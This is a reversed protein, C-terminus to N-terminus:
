FWSKKKSSLKQLKEYLGKEESSLKEPIQLRVRVYHDGYGSSRLHPVGKDRIRILAGPETGAPVKLSVEGWVTKVTVVDGLVVQPITLTVESFIDAGERLFEPHRRVRFVIDVGEFRMRTGNDVGAPVKITMEKQKGKEDELRVTKTTGHIAEEFAIELQYTPTRRYAGGAAGGFPGGFGGMGFIQEFLDFPDAFGGFDFDVNPNGKGTSYSYTRFGGFPGGAGPGFGGGPDFASHGFQDYARKKEVNSLVQYAESIEKFKEAAGPSKDVDPHHQRALKRYATKIEAESATKSVGLIDYYDRKTAM